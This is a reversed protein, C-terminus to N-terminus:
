GVGGGGDTSNLAAQRPGGVIGAAATDLARGRRCTRVSRNRLSPPLARSKLNPWFAFGPKAPPSRDTNSHLLARSPFSLGTRVCVPGDSTRTMSSLVAFGKSTLRVNLTVAQLFGSQM